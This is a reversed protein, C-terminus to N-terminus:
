QKTGVDAPVLFQGNARLETQLERIDMKHVPSNAKIAIAAAIGASEGAIMYNPEM